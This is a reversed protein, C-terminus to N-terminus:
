DSGTARGHTSDTSKQPEHKDFGQDRLDEILSNGEMDYVLGLYRGFKGTRDKITRIVLIPKDALWHEVFRTAARGLATNKEYVDIGYLRITQRISVGFGLDIVVKLTDGDVVRELRAYYSFPELM